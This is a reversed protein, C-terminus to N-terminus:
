RVRQRHLLCSSHQEHLTSCICLTVVIACPRFLSCSSMLTANLIYPMVPAAAWDLLREAHQCPLAFVFGSLHPGYSLSSHLFLFAHLVICVFPFACCRVTENGGASVTAVNALDADTVDTSIQQLDKVLASVTAEIGRCLQVPNTGAAVIKMGEAIIAASLITATTTGDGATDNTKSAAQTVSHAIDTCSASGKFLCAM